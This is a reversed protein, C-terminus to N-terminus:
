QGLYQCTASCYEGPPDCQESPQNVVGDGCYPGAATKPLSPQRYLVSATASNSCVPQQKYAACASATNTITWRIGADIFYSSHCLMSAGPQLAAQPQCSWNSPVKNDTITFPPALPVNGTNTLTYTYTVQQSGSYITPSASKTLSLAPHTDFGIILSTSAKATFSVDKKLNCSYLSEKQTAEVSANNRVEGAELDQATVTYAGTCIVGYGSVTFEELTPCSVAVKDDQIIFSDLINPGENTVKYSYHIVQGVATFKQVDASKQISISQNAHSLNFQNVLNDLEAQCIEPTKKSSECCCATLYIGLIILIFVHYVIGWRNINM